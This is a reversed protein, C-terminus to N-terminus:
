ARTDTAAKSGEALVSTSMAMSMFEVGEGSRMMCRPSAKLILANSM